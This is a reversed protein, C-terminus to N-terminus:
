IKLFYVMTNRYKKGDCYSYDSEVICDDEKDTEVVFLTDKDAWGSETLAIIAKAGAQMQYPPDIFVIDMAKNSFVPKLVDCNIININEDKYPNANDRALRINIDMLYVNEAGRSMAEIGMSGSGCFADLFKCGNIGVRSELSSFIAEKIRDATPRIKIDAPAKLIRGRHKGAIIRM